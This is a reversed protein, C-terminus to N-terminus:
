GGIHGQRGRRSRDVACGPTCRGESHQELVDQEIASDLALGMLAEGGQTQRAVQMNAINVGAEGLLTGVIGVIGPRDAYRFFAMIPHFAMDFEYGYVRVLRETDRKGVLVGAVSVTEDKSVVRVEVLNVYDLSQSTKSEEVAIGREKAVLPANVFTVPEHSVASFAGKLGALTM